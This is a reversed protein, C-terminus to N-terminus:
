PTNALLIQVENVTGCLNSGLNLINGISGM